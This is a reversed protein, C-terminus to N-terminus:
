QEGDGNGNGGHDQAEAVAVIPELGPVQQGEAWLMVISAVNGPKRRSQRCLRDLASRAEPTLNVQQGKRKMRNEM